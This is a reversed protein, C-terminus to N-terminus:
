AYAEEAYADIEKELVDKETSAIRFIESQNALFIGTLLPDFQTGAGGRIISLSEEHSYAPKYPRESRLADYVDALAMVRATLPIEDGSLGFPYGTGDWREHHFEAIEKAFMLFTDKEMTRQTRMIAHAGLTTHTKMVDFEEATLKGPKLLIHDPIGVKGIDHLVASNAILSIAKRSFPLAYPIRDLILRVYLRTRTIHEGTERDRFESLIAMSNIVAERTKDLDHTRTDLLDQKKKRESLNTAVAIYFNRREANGSRFFTVDVWVSSGDPRIYRKEIHAHTKDSELFDKMKQASSVVDAPHTISLGTAGLLEQRSRGLIASFTDNIYAITGRSADLVAIPIPAQDFTTPDDAFYSFDFATM